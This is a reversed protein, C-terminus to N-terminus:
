RKMVKNFLQELQMGTDIYTLNKEVYEHANNALNTRLQADTILRFLEEALAQPNRPPFVIALEGNKLVETVGCGSCVIVPKRFFMAELPALGWTQNECPFIFIDCFDYMLSLEENKLPGLFLVNRTLDLTKVLEKLMAAYKPAHDESGSILLTVDDHIRDQDKLIKVSFLLDEIRRRPVLIGHFYLRIAHSSPDPINSGLNHRIAHDKRKKDDIQYFQEILASSIGLRVTQVKTTKLKKRVFNNMRNDLVLMEDILKLGLNLKILLQWVPRLAEIDAKDYVFWIVRFNKFPFIMKLLCSLQLSYFDHPFCLRIREISLTNYLRKIIEPMGLLSKLDFGLNRILHFKTTKPIEDILENCHGDTIIVVKRKFYQCITAISRTIGNMKHIGFSITGIKYHFNPNCVNTTSVSAPNSQSEIQQTERSQTRM